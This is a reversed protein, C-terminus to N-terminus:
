IFIERTILALTHCRRLSHYHGCVCLSVIGDSPHARMWGALVLALIERRVCLSRRTCGFTYVCACVCACVCVFVCVFM